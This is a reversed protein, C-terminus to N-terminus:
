LHEIAAFLTWFELPTLTGLADLVADYDAFKPIAWAFIGAVIAVSAVIGLVTKWRVRPKTRVAM